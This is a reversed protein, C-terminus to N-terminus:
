LSRGKWTYVKDILGGFVKLGKTFFGHTVMLIIKRCNRQRIIKAIEVFTRGGDCIDDVIYCDKNEFDDKHVTVGTIEGTATNRQKSCEVVGDASVKYALKYIKKLAGADPAILWMGGGSFRKAFIEDQTEVVCNDILATTVDSHPDKIEIRKAGLSNIIGAFVKLSFCEGPENIRDQRGFPVYPIAITKLYLGANKIADCLLMLTIIEATNEFNFEINVELNRGDRVVKVHQEGCPFNFAEFTCGDTTIM